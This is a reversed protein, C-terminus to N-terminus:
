EVTVWDRCVLGSVERDDLECDGARIRDPCVAALCVVALLAHDKRDVGAVVKSRELSSRDAIRKTVVGDRGSSCGRGSCCRRRRRSPGWGGACWTSSSSSAGSSARPSPSPSTSVVLNNNTARTDDRVVRWVDSRRNAVSDRKLEVLLVVGDGLARKVCGAAGQRRRARGSM